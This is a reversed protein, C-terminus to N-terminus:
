SRAAAVGLGRRHGLALVGEGLGEVRGPHPDRGRPLMAPLRPAAVRSLVLRLAVVLVLSRLTNEGREGDGSASLLVGCDSACACAARKRALAEMRAWLGSRLASAAVQPWCCSHMRPHHELAVPSPAPRGGIPASRGRQDTRGCHAPSGLNAPAGERSRRLSRLAHRKPPQKEAKVSRTYALAEVVFM